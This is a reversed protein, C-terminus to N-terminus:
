VWGRLKIAEHVRNIAIIYAADRMYVKREKSLNYVARFANAM